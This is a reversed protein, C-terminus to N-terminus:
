NNSLENMANQLAFDYQFLKQFQEQLDPKQHLLERLASANPIFKEQYLISVRKSASSGSGDFRWEHTPLRTSNVSPPM